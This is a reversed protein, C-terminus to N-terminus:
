SRSTYHTHLLEHSKESNPHDLYEKYLKKISPNEHSKRYESNKDIDYIATMREILTNEDTPIPQGGGGICGGPCAMFEIFHYQKEGNKIKELITRANGLGNVIAIKINKNAIKVEAEKIGKIGRLDHFDIKELELGTIVEYSTRLAAEMVGGSAGFIVAAGSSEGLPEDYLSEKLNCLDIGAHKFMKALERTTLVYDVDNIMEKRQMEYKKATCPMISIVKIKDKSINNKEAFYTKAIAGFMQQPSKCSSLNKIFEPYNHEVFKIWGPSCSTMLPLDKENKLRDIFEYGEEMITLDAAFNTDFVKDFGLLKLGEVMQYPSIKGSKENFEESIAVRVAPATQVITFYQNSEIAEWVQDIHYVEHLAGTPCELICQGCNTCEVNGMGKDMFTTVHTEPGRNAITLININQIESCKRVCRNCIICKQPDRIISFSSKDVPQKKNIPPIRIERIGIEDSIKRIECSNARSCNLCNSSCNIDHSAIILEMIVKRVHRVKKSHTKINMGDEILTVCAPMLNKKNEVEVSCLRCSGYPALKENFCLTPIKINAKKAAQLITIKDNFTYSRNNIKINISM